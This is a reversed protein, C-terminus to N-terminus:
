PHTYIVTNIAIKLRIILQKVQAVTHKASLTIRLRASNAPVTPPRIATVLIGQQYLQQSVALAIDAQALIVGQIPTDSDLLPIAYEDALQKFTQILHRLHARQLDAQEVTEITHTMATALAPPLATTYIYTRATQILYDILLADGAIFAGFGGFAKGLTGMLIPVDDSDVNFQALTGRGQEGLVGLGHADDVMLWAQYKNALAVLDPIPAIDGEMSFVGDTVILRHRAQSKRLLQALHAMDGHRYRHIKARSLLGADVLSAHNLKDMFIADHRSVLATIVGLNAMYGTSFLLAQERQTFKALRQELQQHASQHGSVLHASGAGIGYHAVAQQLVANSQPDNALGLYDNSCFSLHPTKDIHLLVGQAQQHCLRQRYLYNLKKESIVNHLHQQLQTKM